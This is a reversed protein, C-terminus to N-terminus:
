SKDLTILGGWIENSINNTEVKIIYYQREDVSHATNLTLTTNTTGGTVISTVSDTNYNGFSLSFSLNANSYVDIKTIEYGKPLFAMAYIDNARSDYNSSVVSGADERTYLIARSNSSLIFDSPSLFYQLINNTTNWNFRGINGGRFNGNLDLRDNTDDFILKSSAGFAGNNNFQVQTDSGAPTGGGGTIVNTLDFVLPSLISGIPYTISLTFSALDIQTDSTTSDASATLILPNSGDPYTLILKQGSYIKGKSNTSLTVKTDTTGNTLASALKGYSNNNLMQRGATNQQYVIEDIDDIPPQPSPGDPTTGGTINTTISNVEFWEGSLVESQAKFTGGLFSYFKFNSDNNISYKILKLPSIDASQIDAQLIQLPDVQFELFENVLLQSANIYSGSNGRRFGPVVEYISGSNYQFSHLSNVTSQGLNVDGLDFQEIATNNTQSATYIIGNTVDNDQNNDTPILTINECTISSDSPTPDSLNGFIVGGTPPVYIQYYDNDCILQIYVNGSIPPQEVIADFIIDTYFQQNNNVTINTSCPGGSQGYINSVLGVAMNSTDNVPLSTDAAYGRQISINTSTNQWSLINSGATQKLWHTNSGNTIFITLTGSTLFSAKNVSYNSPLTGPAVNFSFNSVAVIEYYKAHFSLQFEGTLGSQISGALFSNQLSQGSGIEFNSFGGKHNVKVSEFSPEFTITSGGLIVNTSQDITLLTNLNLPNSPNSILGSNYEYVSIVGTTNNAYNNPQIFNYHGEALFGVTNFAKLVGNFVDSPKYKLSDIDQEINNDEDYTTPKTVFGKAVHYLVAPDNSQYSHPSSWWDMSTRLWNFSTPIPAQNSGGLINLDMDEAITFLIDRIKHPANKEVVNNFFKEKQKSWFGYSDTATLQFVYPFPLNEIKDFAPQVFGFWWLNSNSVSGKYIRVFYEKYGSAITNYIFTEDTNNEIFCNLKCESGLFVRDRTGGQGNWTIEFGEGALDIETSTGSFGNKWIEINWVSGKEAYITSHRHKGYAM